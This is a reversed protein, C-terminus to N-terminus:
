ESYQNFLVTFITGGGPTDGIIIRAAHDKVIDSVIALGIGNGITRDAISENIRYHRHFISEREAEPIGPGNDEVSFVAMGQSVQTRVTVVGHEPTYTIANDILNEVLDRLLFADGSIQVPDLDFGLDILKRDAAGLFSHISDAVIKDLFVPELRKREFKSPEARALSLLQNTQRIMRETSMMMLDVSRATNVENAYKDQLWELQAKLGALPTRLQHAITALFEQQTIAGIEIKHLLRNIATVVADLEIANEEVSIASLEDFNRQNLDAQIKNLPLLGNTVAMWAVGLLLATISGEVLILAFLIRLQIANRKKLTEAAHIVVPEDGIMFKISAIRIEEGRMAGNQFYPEDFKLPVETNPFDKDGALTQNSQNRIVLYITNFHDVRLVQEVSTPLDVDINGSQKTLRTSLAWCTESLSQDFAIQAPTWALWYVLSGGILNVALLPVILRLLLSRRISPRHTKM